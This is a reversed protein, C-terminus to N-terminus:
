QTSAGYAGFRWARLQQSPSRLDRELQKVARSSGATRTLEKVWSRFSKPNGGSKVYKEFYGIWDIEAGSEQNKRIANKINIRLKDRRAADKATQGKSVYYQELEAQQRTSRLGILRATTDLWTRTEAAVQGYRDIEQGGQMVTLWGKMVRNPMERTLTQVLQEGVNDPYDDLAAQVTNNIVKTVGAITKIGPNELPNVTQYTPTRISADGRTHFALGFASIGGNALVSGMSPGFQAYLRDLATPEQSGSEEWWDRAAMIQKAGPVGLAGFLSAQAALHIGFEEFQGKELWRFMKQNQNLMYSLFTGYLSGFATQFLEPRNAPSYDAIAANAIERAFEHRAGMGQIGHYDALRLGVFHSYQRSWDETTDTMVGLMGDIGRSKVIGDEKRGTGMMVRRFTTPSDIVAMQRNFDAVEQSADGMKVMHEWDAHTSKRNSIMDKMAGALIRASDPVGVRSGGKLKFGVTIPSKGSRALAPMTAMIGTLNLLAHPLELWRLMTAASLRNLRQTWKRVDAPRQIQLTSEAYDMAHKFPTYEGMINVMQPYSRIAAQKGIPVGLRGLLDAVHLGLMQPRDSLVKNLADEVSRFVRGTMSSESYGQQKGTLATVYEDYINRHKDLKQTPIGKAHKEVASHLRAIQLQEAYITRITENGQNLTQRKAWELADEFARPNVFRSALNGFQSKGPALSFGPDIWDLGAEDYIDKVAELSSQERITYGHGEGFEEVLDKETRAYLSKFGEDGDAVITWGGVVQDFEDFVFAVRKGELNPPPTYYSTREIPRLGHARRLRNRDILLQDSVRGFQELANMGLDDVVIEKGTRPNTLLTGEAVEEVGLRARNKPTDALQFANLKGHMRVPIEELDWGAKSSFFQNLMAKSAQNGSSNVRVLTDSLGTKSFLAEIRANSQRHVIEQIRSAALMVPNDRWRFRQTLGEGALQSLANGVGTIQDDSLGLMNMATKAEPMELITSTLKAIFGSSGHKTDLLEKIATAKQIAHAEALGEKSLPQRVDEPDFYGLLPKVWNGKKDRNWKFMAGDIRGSDNLGGTRSKRLDFGQLQKVNDLAEQLDQIVTIASSKRGVANAAIAQKLWERLLDGSSDEIREFATGGPLNFALRDWETIEGTSGKKSLLEKAKFTLSELMAEEMNEFGADRWNVQGGMRQYEAASDIQFWNAQKPLNFGLKQQKMRALLQKTGEIVKLQDAVELTSFNKGKGGGIKFSESIRTQGGRLPVKVAAGTKVKEIQVVSPDFDAIAKAEKSAAENFRGNFFLMPEQEELARALGLEKGEKELKEIYEARAKFAEDITSEPRGLRDLGHAVFPDDKAAERFAIFSASDKLKGRETKVGDLGRNLIKQLSDDALAGFQGRVEEMRGKIPLPAAGPTEARSAVMLETFRASEKLRDEALHLRDLGADSVLVNSAGAPDLGKARIDRIGRANAYARVASRAGLAGIGAGAIPGLSAWFLDKSLDGTYMAENANLVGYLVAEEAAGVAAGKAVQVGLYKRGAASAMLRYATGSAAAEKQAVLVGARASTNLAKGARWLRSSSLFTSNALGSAVRPLVAYNAVALTALSGTLASSGEIIGRNREYYEKEDTDDFLSWVDGRETGPIYQNGYVSDVLDIATGATWRAVHEAAGVGVNTRNIRNFIRDGIQDQMEQPIGVESVSEPQRLATRGRPSDYDSDLSIFSPM